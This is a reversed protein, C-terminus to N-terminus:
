VPRTNLHNQEYALLTTHEVANILEQDLIAEANDVDPSFNMNDFDIQTANRDQKTLKEITSLETTIEEEDEKM